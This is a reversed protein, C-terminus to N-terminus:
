NAIPLPTPTNAPPRPTRTPTPTWTPTPTFTPTPTITPTNTPTPTDTPTPTITPTSPTDSGGSSGRGPFWIPGDSLPTGPAIKFDLYDEPNVPADQWRIEFHLHEGTSFGSSGTIGLVVNNDVAAGKAVLTKSFHGYLTTWGDGCDVFVHNGYASSYAAATVTGTCASYVPSQSLGELALDIGGHILGPGRNNAGYRDTVRSWERLPMAFRSTAAAAQAADPLQAASPKEIAGEDTDAVQAEAAANEGAATTSTPPAASSSSALAAVAATDGPHQEAGSGNPDRAVIVAAVGAMFTAGLLIRVAHSGPIRPVRLPPM